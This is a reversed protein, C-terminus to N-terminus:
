PELGMKRVFPAYRPDSRLNDAVPDVKIQFPWGSKKEYSQELYEFAKDYDGLAAFILSFEPQPMPKTKSRELLQQIIVKAKEHEGTIAYILGLITVNAPDDDSISVATEASMVAKDPKGVCVYVFAQERHAMQFGPFM